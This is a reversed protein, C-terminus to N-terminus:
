WGWMRRAMWQALLAFWLFLYAGGREAILMVRRGTAASLRNILLLWFFVYVLPGAPNTRVAVAWRGHSIAVFSRTLGCAPCEIGTLAKYICMKGPIGNPPLLFSLALVLTIVASHVWAEESTRTLLNSTRSLLSM